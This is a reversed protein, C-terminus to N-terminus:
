PPRDHAASVRDPVKRLPFWPAGAYYAVRLRDAAVPGAPSMTQRLWEAAEREPTLDKLFPPKPIM